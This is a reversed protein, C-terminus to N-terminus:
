IVVGAWAAALSVLAGFTLPGRLGPYWAPVLAFAAARLEAFLLVLFGLGLLPYGAIPPLLLGLWGVLSPVVSLLLQRVRAPTPEEAHMALGWHIAGMFGLIVAAYAQLPMHPDLWPLPLTERWALAAGFVFPLLGLYGLQAALRSLPTTDLSM